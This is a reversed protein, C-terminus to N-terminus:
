LRSLVVHALPTDGMSCLGSAWADPHNHQHRWRIIPQMGDSISVCKFIGVEFPYIKPNM